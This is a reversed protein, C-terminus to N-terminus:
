LNHGGDLGFIVAWAAMARVAANPTDLKAVALPVEERRGRWGIAWLSQLQMMEDPHQTATELLPRAAAERTWGLAEVVGAAAEPAISADALVAQAITVINASGARRLAGAAVQGPEAEGSSLIAILTEVGEVDGLRAQSAAAAIKVRPNQDRALERLQERSWANDIHGLSAAAVEREDPFESQTLREVRRAADPAGLVSMAYIGWAQMRSDGPGRLTREIDGLLSADHTAAAADISVLRTDFEEARLGARLIAGADARPYSRLAQVIELEIVPDRAALEALWEVARPARETLVASVAARQEFRSGDVLARELFDTADSDGGAYLVGAAVLRDYPSNDSEIWVAHAADFARQRDRDVGGTCGALGACVLGLVLGARSRILPIPSLM